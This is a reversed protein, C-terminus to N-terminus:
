NKWEWLGMAALENAYETDHADWRIGGHRAHNWEHHWVNHIVYDPAPYGHDDNLCITIRMGDYWGIWGEQPGIDLFRTYIAPDTGYMPALRQAEAQAWEQHPTDVSADFFHQTAGCGTLITLALALITSKM